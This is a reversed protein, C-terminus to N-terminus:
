DGQINKRMKKIKKTQPRKFTSFTNKGRRQLKEKWFPQNNLVRGFLPGYCGKVTPDTLAPMAPMQMVKKGNPKTIGKKYSNPHLHKYLAMPIAMARKRLTPPIWPLGLQGTGRSVPRFQSIQLGRLHVFLITKSGLREDSELISSQQHLNLTLASPM